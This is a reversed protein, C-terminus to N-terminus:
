HTSLYPAIKRYKEENILPLQRIQTIETFSKLDKRLKIIDSALWKRIYPHRALEEETATNVNILKVYRTDTRLKISIQRYTSDPLGYVEKVQEVRVFGGLANRYNLIRNAFAPGIGKLRMLTAADAQNLEIIEPEVSTAPHDKERDDATYVDKGAIRVYPAIREYDAAGLTYLKRLDEKKYFKGGKSRYKVLTKATGPSLGLQILEQESATNPDFVFLIATNHSEHQNHEQGGAAISNGTDTQETHERKFQEWAAQLQANAPDASPAMWVPLLRWLLLLVMLLGILVIIGTRKSRSLHLGTTSTHAM